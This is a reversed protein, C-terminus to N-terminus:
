CLQTPAAAPARKKTASKKARVYNYDSGLVLINIKRDLQRFNTLITWPDLNTGEQSFAGETKGSSFSSGLGEIKKTLQSVIDAEELSSGSATQGFTSALVGIVSGVSLSGCVIAAALLARFWINLRQTQRPRLSPPLANINKKM